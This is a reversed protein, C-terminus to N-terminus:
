GAARQQRDARQQRIRQLMAHFDQEVAAEDRHRIDQQHGCFECTLSQLGIHFFLDAGCSQCPFMRAEGADILRGSQDGSDPPFPVEPQVSSDSM